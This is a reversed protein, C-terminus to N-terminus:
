VGRYKPARREVFSAVGENADQTTMNIEQAMAEAAFATARDADMSANVLQKTLAISRTPGEALRQAWARATAALEEDPVVRNVLGLREAEAAPLSDGFFMLEKARQPGILRPLLYAGGGDPVLGRRVFVEIFKASGAALVLDCAFALHAGIGAATGNVAAIVPKECDLVAAILRQAGLRITRAVDGPVREGTAPAGRLDAGACFGRGTATLVVARVAPDASAEALLGIVRERQEWTVANMAEPRNLTIWSVGNDTAHLVLSHLPDAPEAPETSETIDEPSSPM